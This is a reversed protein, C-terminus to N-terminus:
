IPCFIGVMTIGLAGFCYMPIALVWSKSSITHYHRFIGHIGILPLVVLIFFHLKDLNQLSYVPGSKQSGVAAPQLRRFKDSRTGDKLIEGFLPSRPQISPTRKFCNIIKILGSYGACAIMPESNEENLLWACTYFM